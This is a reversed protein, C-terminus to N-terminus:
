LKVIMEFLRRRYTASGVKDWLPQLKTLQEAHEADRAELYAQVGAHDDLRLSHVRQRAVVADQLAGLCEQLDVLPALAQEINPGLADAFFELTYRLRKGAIRAEHLDADSPNALATEHARWQEYRRWIASGAFDRVRTGASLERSLEAGPTTLFEAFARKFKEYRDQKLDKRLEARAEARQAAIAVLLPTIEDRAAEPLRAQYAAVHEHFVDLDRVDGLEQAVRRLGRRYRRVSKPDYVTEVIQLAARLRRSAVRMQHVDEPDNDKRVADERALMRGFFRRLVRRAGEAIAEGGTLEDAPAGGAAITLM